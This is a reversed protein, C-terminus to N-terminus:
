GVRARGRRRRAPARFGGGGSCLKDPCQHESSVGTEQKRGRDRLQGRVRRSGRGLTVCKPLQKEVRPARESWGPSGTACKASSSWAQDLCGCAMGYASLRSHGYTATTTPCPGATSRSATASKSSPLIAPLLFPGLRSYARVDASGMTYVPAKERTISYSIAQLEAFQFQGIVAKINAPYRAPPTLVYENNTPIRPWRKVIM